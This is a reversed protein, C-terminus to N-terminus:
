GFLSEILDLDAKSGGPIAEGGDDGGEGKEEEKEEEAPKEEPPEEGGDDDDKKKPVDRKKEAAKTGILKERLKSLFGEEVDQEELQLPICDKPQRPILHILLHPVRQGAAGGNAVFLTTSQFEHTQLLAKSLVKVAVSIRALTEPRLQPMMAVHQKPLILIHGPAAPKIDLVAVVQDDEYLKRSPVAGSAIQCFLCQQGPPSQPEM